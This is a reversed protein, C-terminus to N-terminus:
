HKILEDYDYPIVNTPIHRINIQSKAYNVIASLARRIGASVNVYDELRIYTRIYTSIVHIM